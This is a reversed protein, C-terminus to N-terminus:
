SNLGSRGFGGTLYNFDNYNAGGMTFAADGSLVNSPVNYAKIAARTQAAQSKLEGLDTEFKRYAAMSPILKVALNKRICEEYAPPFMLTTTLDPFSQLQQWTYLELMYTTLAGPWIYITAAGTAPNFQKDYYLVLPIASPLQQVAISAWEGAGILRVPTRLVPTTTNLIINAYQIDTPRPATFNPATENPGITYIQQGATLSYSNIVYAFIMLQDIQWGSLMQNGTRIAHTSLDASAMQGPRLVGLEVLADNVMQQGTTTTGDISM